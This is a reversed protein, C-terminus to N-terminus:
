QPPRVMAAQGPMVNIPMAPTVTNILKGDVVYTLCRATGAKTIEVRGGDPGVEGYGLRVRRVDRLDRPTDWCLNASAPM